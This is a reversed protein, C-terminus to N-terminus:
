YLNVKPLGEEEDFDFDEEIYRKLRVALIACTIALAELSVGLMFFAIDIQSAGGFLSECVDVKLEEYRSEVFSINMSCLFDEVEIM